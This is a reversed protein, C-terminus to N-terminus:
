ASEVVTVNAVRVGIVHFRGKARNILWRRHAGYIRRCQAAEDFEIVEHWEALNQLGEYSRMDDRYGDEFLLIAMADPRIQGSLQRKRLNQLVRENKLHPFQQWWTFADGDLDPVKEYAQCHVRFMGSAASARSREDLLKCYKPDMEVAAASRAAHAFCAMGDGNRTGIEVLDLGAIHQAVASHVAQPSRVPSSDKLDTVLQSCNVSRTTSPAYARIDRRRGRLEHMSTEHAMAIVVLLVIHGNRSM